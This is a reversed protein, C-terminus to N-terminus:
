KKFSFIFILFFFGQSHSKIQFLCIQSNLISKPILNGILFTCSCAIASRQTQIGITESLCSSSVKTHILQNIFVIKIDLFLFLHRQNSLHKKPYTQSRLSQNIPKLILYANAKHQNKIAHFLNEIKPQTLNVSRNKKNKKIMANLQINQNNTTHTQNKKKITKTKFQMLNIIRIKIKKFLM